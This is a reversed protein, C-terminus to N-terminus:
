ALLYPTTMPRADPRASRKPNRGSDRAFVFFYVRSLLGQGGDTRNMVTSDRMENAKAIKDAQPARGTDPREPANREVGHDSGNGDLRQSEAEIQLPLPQRNRDAEFAV